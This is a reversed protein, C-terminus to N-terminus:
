RLIEVIKYGIERVVDDAWLVDLHSYGKVEFVKLNESNYEPEFTEMHTALRRGDVLNDKEGNFITMPVPDTFWQEKFPYFTKTDDVNYEKNDNVKYNMGNDFTDKLVLENRFSEERWYSLWWTLLKSSVNSVNFIFHIHWLKKNSHWKTGTWEFLYHFMMVCLTGFMSYQCFNNRAQTMINLFCCIGFSLKYGWKSRNGMFQLFKRKHFLTGPYIAPALAIFHSVKEHTENLEPNRLMLFSQTCGQLHGVLVLKKFNPTNVLVNDILCTLDYYALDRIDWDWYQENHMLNGTLFGHEPRFGSRNNGLWVDYGERLLYVPLSRNGPTLFSGSSSLLGHQLLIPPKDSLALDLLNPDVLRHLTLIFGDKTQVKYEKLDLKLQLAYYRLDSTAKLTDMHPYCPIPYDDAPDECELDSPKKNIFKDRISYCIACIFLVYVFCFSLIASTFIYWYKTITSHPNQRTPTFNM